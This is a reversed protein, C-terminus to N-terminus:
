KDISPLNGEYDIESNRIRTTSIIKGDEALVMPVVVIKISPLNKEARLKNLIEGQFSKEESVVMAQVGEEM